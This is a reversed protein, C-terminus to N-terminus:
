KSGGAGVREPSKAIWELAPFYDRGGTGGKTDDRGRSVREPASGGVLGVVAAGEDDDNQKTPEGRLNKGAALCRGFSDEPGGWCHM